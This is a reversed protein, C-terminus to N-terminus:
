RFLKEWFSQKDLHKNTCVKYLKNWFRAPYDQNRTILKQFVTDDEDKQVLLSGVSYSGWVVNLRKVYNFVSPRYREIFDTISLTADSNKDWQSVIIFIKSHELVNPQEQKLYNLFDYLLTDERDHANRISNSDALSQKPPLFPTILAFVIPSKDVQLGNFVANIKDTFDSKNSTKINEIDDGALDLFALKLGPLKPNNPTLNVGVLDLSGKATSSYIDGKTFYSIMEDAAIRGKDFPFQNEFNTRFLTGDGKSAFHLLSSLFLSKGAQPFGIPVITVRNDSAFQAFEGAIQSLPIDALFQKGKLPMQKEIPQEDVKKIDINFDTM